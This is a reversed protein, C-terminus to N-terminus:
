HHVFKAGDFQHANGVEDLQLFDPALQIDCFFAAVLPVLVGVVSGIVQAGEISFHVAQDLVVERM